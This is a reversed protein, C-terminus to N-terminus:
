SGGGHKLRILQERLGMLRKQHDSAVDELVGRLKLLTDRQHSIIGLDTVHETTQGWQGLKAGLSGLLEAMEPPIQQQGM